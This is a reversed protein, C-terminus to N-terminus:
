RSSLRLQNLWEGIRMEDQESMKEQGFEDIYKGLQMRELERMATVLISPLAREDAKELGLANKLKWMLLTLIRPAEGAPPCTGYEVETSDLREVFEDILDNKSKKPLHAFYSDIASPPVMALLFNQLLEFRSHTIRGFAERLTMHMFFYIFEFFVYMEKGQRDTPDESKILAKAVDRCNTSGQIISVCIAGLPRFVRDTQQAADHLIGEAMAASKRNAEFRNEM